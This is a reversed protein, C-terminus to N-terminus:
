PAPESWRGLQISFKKIRHRLHHRDIGLARAARSQNGGAQALAEEIMRKEADWLSGGGPAPAQSREPKSVVSPFLQALVAASLTEGPHLVSAREVMNKLERVNGPWAYQALLAQTDPALKVPPRRLERAYRAAFYEFLGPLDELRARLPPVQIPMVNLRHFLDERFTEHRIEEPLNRNTAAIIRADTHLAESSGVREFTRNELARLLRAQLPLELEAIEDLFITGGRALEFRGLRRATAGTFAGKEHGFLESALLNPELAGCNVTIFPRDKRESQQHLVTAVIEKGCGSEGTLLVTAQTPAVKRVLEWVQQMAPSSGLFIPNRETAARFGDRETRCFQFSRANVLAVAAFNAFIRLLELDEEDFAQHARKNIAELVGLTETGTRIPAALLNRTYAGTKEDVGRFHEPNHEPHNAMVPEGTKLVKGAIGESKPFRIKQLMAKNPGTATYFFLDDGETEPLIVSCSEAEVVQQAQQIISQLLAEEDLERVLNCSAQLLAEIRHDKM